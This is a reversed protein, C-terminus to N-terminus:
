RRQTPSSSEGLVAGAELRPDRDEVFAPAALLAADGGIQCPGHRGIHGVEKGPDGGLDRWAELQIRTHACAALGM